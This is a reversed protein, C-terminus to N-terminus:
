QEMIQISNLSFGLAILRRKSFKSKTVRWDDYLAVINNTIACSKAGYIVDCCDDIKSSLKKYVKNGSKKYCFGYASSAMDIYYSRNMLKSKAGPFLSIKIVAIDGLKKFVLFKNKSDFQAKLYLEARTVEKSLLDGNLAAMKMINSLYDLIDNTLNLNQSYASESIKKYFFDDLNSTILNSSM